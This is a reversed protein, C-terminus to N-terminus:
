RGSLESTRDEGGCEPCRTPTARLDYGCRICQGRRKRRNRKLWRLTTVLPEISLTLVVAWMPFSLTVGSVRRLSTVEIAFGLRRAFSREWGMYLMKSPPFTTFRPGHGPLVALTERLRDISDYEWWGRQWGIIVRGAGTSIGFDFYKYKLGDTEVKRYTCSAARYQGCAWVVSAAILLLLSAGRFLLRCCHRKLM